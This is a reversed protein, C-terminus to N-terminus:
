EIEIEKSFLVPKKPVGESTEAEGIVSRQVRENLIKTFSQNV